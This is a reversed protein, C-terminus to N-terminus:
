LYVASACLSYILDLPSVFAHTLLFSTFTFTFLTLFLLPLPHPSTFSTSHNSTGIPYLSPPLTLHSLLILRRYRSNNLCLAFTSNARHQVLLSTAYYNNGNAQSMSPPSLIPSPVNEAYTFSLVARM